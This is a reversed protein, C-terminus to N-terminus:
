TEAVAPAAADGGTALWSGLLILVLGAVSVPGLREGLVSVGLIVAVAPNVYTVVSARAAGAESVLFLYLVLAPATCGLGLVAVAGLVAPSPPHAPATLLAPVALVCASIGLSVAVPALPHVGALYRQAILPGVAYGVAATLVFAAGLLERPRGAVDIGLLAVVGALGLALGALRRRGPRESPFFLPALVVVMLPVTAMLIATLSSSIWREGATILMFPGVIEVFAFATVPRIHSGIERLTGRRWALPLLVVAGLAVRGWVVDAPSLERLAVKIFFYPVGWILSLGAFAAWARPTM